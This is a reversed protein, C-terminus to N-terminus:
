HTLRLHNVMHNNKNIHRRCREQGPGLEKSRKRRPIAAAAAAAALLFIIAGVGQLLRWIAEDFASM